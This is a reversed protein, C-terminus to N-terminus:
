ATLPSRMDILPLRPRTHEPDAWTAAYKCLVPREPEPCITMKGLTLVCNVCHARDQVVALTQGVLDM